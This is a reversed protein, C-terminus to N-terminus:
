EIESFLTNTPSACVGFVCVSVLVKKGEESMTSKCICVSCLSFDDACDFLHTHVWCSPPTIFWVANRYDYSSSRRLHLSSFARLTITAVGHEHSLTGSFSM